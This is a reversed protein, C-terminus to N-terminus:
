ELSILTNYPIAKVFIVSSQEKAYRVKIGLEALVPKLKNKTGRLTNKTVM